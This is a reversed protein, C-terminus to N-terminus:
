SDQSLLKYKLEALSWDEETDIDQAFRESIVFGGKNDGGLGVSYKMWYFMGADHYAKELDQSRTLLFEPHFMEVKNDKLRFARQIPYGFQVIPRVSDFNQQIMLKYSENLLDSHVFVATPLICCIHDFDSGSNQYKHKVEEIVDKLPTFDNSAEESRLFPVKAGYKIAIDAIEQDDTSVMIESFLGSDIAAEISYAIIPKGLFNRINKRPIRKSGGRAPIICLNKM